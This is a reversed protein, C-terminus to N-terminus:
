KLFDSVFQKGELENVFLTGVSTHPITDRIIMDQICIIFYGPAINNNSTVLYLYPVM